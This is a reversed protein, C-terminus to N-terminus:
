IIIFVIFRFNIWIGDGIIPWRNLFLAEAMNSLAAIDQGWGKKVIQKIFLDKSTFGDFSKRSLFDTIRKLQPAGEWVQRKFM